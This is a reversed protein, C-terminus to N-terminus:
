NPRGGGNGGNRDRAALLQRIRRGVEDSDYPKQLLPGDECLTEAAESAKAVGSTLIVPTGPRHRRVWQALGFGDLGGPMQVDTFVVDVEVNAQFLAIADQANGAEIVAYGCDRLYEAIVLRILVEDEVVLIVAKDDGAESTPRHNRAPSMM